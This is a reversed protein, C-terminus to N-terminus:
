SNAVREASFRTPSVSARPPTRSTSWATASRPSFHPRTKRFSVRGSPEIGIRAFAEAAPGKGIVAFEDARLSLEKLGDVLADSQVGFQGAVYGLRSLEESTVGIRRAARNTAEIAGAQATTFAAVGAAATGIVAGAAGAAQGISRLGRQTAGITRNFSPSLASGITITADLRQRKTM